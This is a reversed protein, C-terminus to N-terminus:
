TVERSREDLQTPDASGQVASTVNCPITFWFRAGGGDRNSAGYTGGHARVASAVTALGLGSGGGRASAGRRFPEFLADPSEVGIGPGRDLVEVRLAHGVAGDDIRCRVTVCGGGGHVIANTVLNGLAHEVRTRDVSVDTHPADLEITARHKRALSALSRAVTAVLEDIQIPAPAIASSDARTSALELLSTSLSTLRIVDGQAERVAARYESLRADDREVIDLEARLSALPTRLEHSAMAVFLRQREVSEAIRDLMANLTTTLRGLEDTRSPVALRRDLDAPGLAAAADTLRSVPRLARGALFWGGLLALAGVASGVGLLARALAAQADTVPQLDAGTVVITGSVDASREVLYKRGGIEQVGGASHIGAPADISADILTGDASFLAAFVGPTRDAEQLGSQGTNELSAMVAAARTQLATELSSRLAIGMQWWVVAGVVILTVVMGAGYAIALRSRITV